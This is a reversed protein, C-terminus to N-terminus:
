DLPERAVRRTQYGSRLVVSDYYSDFTFITSIGHTEMLVVNVVDVLSQRPCPDKRLRRLADRLLADDVALVTMWIPNLFDGVANGLAALAPPKTQLLRSITEAIM